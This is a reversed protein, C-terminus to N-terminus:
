NGEFHTPNLQTTQDLKINSAQTMPDQLTFESASTPFHLPLGRSPLSMKSMSVLAWKCFRMSSELICHTRTGTMGGIVWPRCSVAGRQVEPGGSCIVGCGERKKSWARKLGFVELLVSQRPSGQRSWANWIHHEPTWCIFSPRSVLSVDGGFFESPKCEVFEWLLEGQFSIEYISGTNQPVSGVWCDERLTRFGSKHWGVTVKPSACKTVSHMYDMASCLPHTVQQQWSRSACTASASGPTVYKLCFGKCFSM